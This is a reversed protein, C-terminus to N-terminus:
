FHIQPGTAQRTRMDYTSGAALVHLRMDTLTVAADPEVYGINSYGIDKVDIVIVSGQGIVTMVDGDFVAATDEDIGLSIRQPYHGAAMILRGIRGRPFFHTDIVVIDPLFGMGPGIIAAESCPYKEQRGGILMSSSMMAAGASTGAIIVGGHWRKIIAEELLSGGIHTSIHIQDGGTFFIATAQAIIRLNEESQADARSSVCIVDVRRAGLGRFLQRYRLCLAEKEQPDVATAIVVIRAKVGGAYRMFERLVLCGKERDEAGGIAMIIGKKM